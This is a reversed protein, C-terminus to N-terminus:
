ADATYVGIQQTGARIQQSLKTHCKQMVSAHVTYPFPIELKM